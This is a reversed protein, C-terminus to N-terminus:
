RLNHYYMMGQFICCSQDNFAGTLKRGKAKHNITVEPNLPEHRLREPGNFNFMSPLVNINQEGPISDM